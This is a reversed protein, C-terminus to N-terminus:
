SHRRRDVVISLVHAARALAFDNQGSRVPKRAKLVAENHRAAEGSVRRAAAREPQRAPDDRLGLHVALVPHLHFMMRKVSRPKLRMPCVHDCASYCTSCDSARQREFGVVMARKNAWGPSARSSVWPAPTAASYTAPLCSSSRCCSPAPPSSSSSTAPRHPMSFIAMSRSPPLLYTLLVVSWVFAFGIALPATILWWRADYTVPTGDPERPPLKRPGVPQLKGTARRMLRNITEVVSFHPCLWGCYLRGWKWSVWILAAGVGLIPGFLRLGLNLWLEGLGIRGASYDDLGIHWEMGLFWAHEAVLDYRLLNFVPAFVFLM